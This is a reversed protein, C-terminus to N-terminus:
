IDLDCLLWLFFGAMAQDLVTGPTAITGFYGLDRTASAASLACWDRDTNYPTQWLFFIPNYAEMKTAM